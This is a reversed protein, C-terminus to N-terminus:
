RIGLTVIFTFDPSTGGVTWSVRFWDDAIAGAQSQWESTRGTAQSFTLRTTPASFGSDTDSDVTVDLTPSTGAAAVVHLAGYLTEDADLTALQVASGDGSSTVQGDHALKGRVLDGYASLSSEFDFREGIQGSPTYSMRVARMLYARDGDSRTPTMSLPGETNLRDFMRQDIRGDGGEWRGSVSASVTQLAGPAFQHTNMGFRTDEVEDASVEMSGQSLDGSADIDGVAILPNKLILTSM